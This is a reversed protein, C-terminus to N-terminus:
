APSQTILGRAALEVVARHPIRRSKGLKVYPLHGNDMLRYVQATCVKLFRAVEAIRDLGDVVIEQSPLRKTM